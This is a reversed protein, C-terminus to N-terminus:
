LIQSESVFYKGNFNEILNKVFKSDEQTQCYFNFAIHKGLEIYNYPLGAKIAEDEIKSKDAKQFTTEIKWMRDKRLAKEILKVIYVGIFNCGATIAMKAWTSVGDANTLVIIYTYFGYCVANMLSAMFAGSKVTCLSKITSLIVNLMTAGIFLLILKMM